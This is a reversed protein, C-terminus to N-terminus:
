VFPMYVATLLSTSGHIIEQGQFMPAKYSCLPCFYLLAAAAYGGLMSEGGGFLFCQVCKM